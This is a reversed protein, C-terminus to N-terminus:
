IEEVQVMQPTGGIVLRYGRNVIIEAFLEGKEDNAQIHLHENNTCAECARPLFEM